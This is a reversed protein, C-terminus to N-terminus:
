KIIEKRLGVLWTKMKGKGKIDVDNRPTFKLDPLLKVLDYTASSLQIKGDIGESEMRSAVNVTDGWMDYMFRSKGIVGGIVPGSNIGIRVNLDFKNETNFNSIEQIAALSMRVANEAHHPTKEKLGSVAMYSDGITKIKEIKFNESQKDFCNFIENLLSVIRRSVLTNSLKTFGVLDIFIVSVEEYNDHIESGHKLREAVSEPLVRKLIDDTEKAAEGLSWVLNNYHVGIRGAQTFPEQSARLSLDRSTAQKQMVTLLEEVDDNARHEAVNLGADEAAESVRIGWYRNILFILSFSTLFVVFFCVIIGLAQVGLQEHGSHGTKLIETNGFIGVALTGWIGCGLHVPIAGVADDLHLRELLKEVFLVTLGGVFGIMVAEYSVVSHCCATIAVLGGLLGNMIKYVHPRKYVVYCIIITSILGSAGSLLTNILVRSLNHDFGGSSGGNFGFWGFFLLLTGLLSLPVNSGNFERVTGDERFRGKRAGLIIIAALAVSGGLTHVVTSGAFDIFGMQYLWGGENWVWHAILPYLLTAGVATIILYMSFKLREAVAGSVITIAAGCFAAQYVFWAGKHPEVSSFFFNSSGLIGIYSTGLFLGYGCAWFGIISIGFDCINKLATNINNKSRTAGAEICMFGAQMIFVLIACILIWLLDLNDASTLLM